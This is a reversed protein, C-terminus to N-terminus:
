CCHVAIYSPPASVLANHYREPEHLFVESSVEDQDPEPYEVLKYTLLPLFTGKLLQVSQSEVGADLPM